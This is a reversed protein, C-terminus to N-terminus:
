YARAKHGSIKRWWKKLHFFKTDSNFRAVEIWKDDQFDLDSNRVDILNFSPMYSKIKSKRNGREDYTKNALMITALRTTDSVSLPALRQPNNSYIKKIKEYDMWEGTTRLTPYDTVEGDLFYFFRLISQQDNGPVKRGFFFRLEGNEVGTMNTIVKRVEDIRMGNASRKTFFPTDIIERYPTGPNFAHTDVYLWNKCCVYFRLYTSAEMKQLVDADIIQDGEKLDLYLNYYRFAFYLEDLFFLIIVAWVFVYWDRSNININIYFILYYSWLLVATLGFLAILNVLQLDTEYHLIQGTRGRESNDGNRMRCRICLNLKKRRIYIGIMTVFFIPMYILSPVYPETLFLFEDPLSLLHWAFLLNLIVTVITTVILCIFICYPILMCSDSGYVRSNYIMTYIIAAGGLTVVPTLYEPLMRSLAIIGIVILLSITM